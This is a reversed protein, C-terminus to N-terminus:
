ARQRKRAPADLKVEAVSATGELFIRDDIEYATFADFRLSGRKKLSTPTCDFIVARGTYTRVMIISGDRFSHLSGGRVPITVLNVLGRPGREFLGLFGATMAIITDGPGYALGALTQGCDIVQTAKTSPLVVEYVLKNSAYLLRSGDRHVGTAEHWDIRLRKAKKGDVWAIFREDYNGGIAFTRKNVVFVDARDPFLKQHARPPEPRTPATRLVALTPKM